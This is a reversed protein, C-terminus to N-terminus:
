PESEDGIARLARDIENGARGVLDAAERALREAEGEALDPDRLRGAVDRLRAAIADVDSPGGTGPTEGTGSV